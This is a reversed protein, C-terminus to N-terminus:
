PVAPIPDFKHDLWDDSGSVKVDGDSFTETVVKEEGSSKLRVTCGVMLNGAHIEELTKNAKLAEAMAEGGAQGFSNGFVHLYQLVTNSKLADALAAPGEPTAKTVLGYSGKEAGIENDSLDVKTLTKNVKLMECIAKAGAERVCNGSAELVQTFIVVLNTM